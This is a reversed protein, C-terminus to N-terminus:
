QTQRKKIDKFDTFISTYESKTTKEICSGGYNPYYTQTRKKRYDSKEPKVYNVAYDSAKTPVIMTFKDNFITKHIDKKELESQAIAMSTSYNTSLSVPKSRVVCNQCEYRSEPKNYADKYESIVKFTINLNM